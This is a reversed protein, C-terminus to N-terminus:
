RLFGDQNRDFRRVLLDLERPSPSVQLAALGDEFEYKNIFGKSEKDFLKFTDLLNFDIQLALENKNNEIERELEIMEKFVSALEVTHDEQVIFSEEEDGLQWKNVRPIYDQKEIASRKLESVTSKEWLPNKYLSRKTPTNEQMRIKHPPTNEVKPRKTESIEEEFMRLPTNDEFDLKVSNNDQFKVPSLDWDKSIVTNGTFVSPTEPAKQAEKKKKPVLVEFEPIFRKKNEKEFSTSFKSFSKENLNSSSRNHIAFSNNNRHGKSASHAVKHLKPKTKSPTTTIKKVSNRRSLSSSRKRKQSIHTTIPVIMRTFETYSLKGDNDHDARRLLALVDNESAPVKNKKLFIYLSDIDLAGLDQSDILSFIVPLVFDGRKGLDDKLLEIKRMFNMEQDFVRALAWQVEYNIAKPKKKFIKPPKKFCSLQRL